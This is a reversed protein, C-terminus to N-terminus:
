QGQALSFGAQGDFTRLYQSVSIELGADAIRQLLGILSGM